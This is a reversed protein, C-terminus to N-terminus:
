KVVNEFSVFKLGIGIGISENGIYLNSAKITVNEWVCRAM